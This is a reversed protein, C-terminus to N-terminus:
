PIMRLMMHKKTLLQVKGRQLAPQISWVPL